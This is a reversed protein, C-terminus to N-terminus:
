KNRGPAMARRKAPKVFFLNLPVNGASVDVADTYPWHREDAVGTQALAGMTNRLWAGTDPTIGM